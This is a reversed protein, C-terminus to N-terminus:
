YVRTPDDGDLLDPKDNPQQQITMTMPYAPIRHVSPVSLTDEDCEENASM